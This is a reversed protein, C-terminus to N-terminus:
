QKAEPNLNMFPLVNRVANDVFTKHATKDLARVIAENYLREETTKANKAHERALALFEAVDGRANNVREAYFGNALEVTQLAKGQELPVERNYLQRAKNITEDMGSRANTVNEYSTKVEKPPQAEQLETMVIGLGTGFDRLRKDTEIRAQIAIDTRALNIVEDGSHDGVVKRMEAISVDDLTKLPDIVNYAYQYPNVIQYHHVWQVWVVSLDGTLMLAEKAFDGEAYTSKVDAKITRFGYEAKFRTKVPIDKVTEVGVPLKFHLGPGVTRDYKGLTEVLGVSDSSVTYPTTLAFICIVILVAIGVYKKPMNGKREKNQTVKLM